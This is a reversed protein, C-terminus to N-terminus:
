GADLVGPLNVLARYGREKVNEIVVGLHQLKRRLHYVHQKLNNTADEPECAGWLGAIITDSGVVRPSAHHLIHLLEAELPQLKISAAAWGLTVSNNELSVLVATPAVAAGCCPCQAATVM